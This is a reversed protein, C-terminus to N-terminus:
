WGGNNVIRHTNAFWNLDRVAVRNLEGAEAWYLTGSDVAFKVGRWGGTNVVRHSNTNWTLGNIRVGHLHDDGNADNWYLFGNSVALNAKCWGGTNVTRGQGMVRNKSLTAGFLNDGSTWYIFGDSAAFKTPCDTQANVQSPSLLSDKPLSLSAIVSGVAVVFPLIM